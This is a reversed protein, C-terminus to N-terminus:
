ILFAHIVSYLFAIMVLGIVMTPVKKLTELASKEEGEAFSRFCIYGVLATVFVIMYNSFSTLYTIGFFAVTAAVLFTTVRVGLVEDGHTDGLEDLLNQGVWVLVGIFVVYWILSGAGPIDDASAFVIVPLALMIGYKVIENEIPEKKLTKFASIVSQFLHVFGRLLLSLTKRVDSLIYFIVRDLFSGTNSQSIKTHTSTTM